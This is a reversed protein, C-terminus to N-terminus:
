EPQGAPGGSRASTLRRDVLLDDLADLVAQDSRDDFKRAFHCGSALMAPLDEM